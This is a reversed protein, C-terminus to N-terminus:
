VIKFLSGRNRATNEVAKVLARAIGKNRFKQGVYVAALWPRLHKFNDHDSEILAATGFLQGESHAIFAQELSTTDCFRQYGAITQEFTHGRDKGWATWNWQACPALFEPFQGLPDIRIKM